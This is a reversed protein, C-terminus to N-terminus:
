DEEKEVPVGAMKMKARFDNEYEEYTHVEVPYNWPNIHRVERSNNALNRTPSLFVGGFHVLKSFPFYALLTSVLLLHVYFISGVSSPVVPHFSVLGMALNKVGVVDVRHFYRMVVGSIGIGLILFLPFSDNALTMYKVQPIFIRRLLLYTVATIFLIDTVYLMPMGVQLFGHLAASLKGPNTVAPYTTLFKLGNDVHEISQVFGPVRQFFFRLHRIVIILFTWHFMMGGLWLWRTSKYVLQPNDPTGHMETRLNRWLTRFVLVELLMRIFTGGAGSPNEIKNQKIWPLSKQQGCTTPIRFPVPAKGWGVVKAIMGLVFIALAAYPVVVGLLFQLHAGAGAIALLVLVLVAVLPVLFRM